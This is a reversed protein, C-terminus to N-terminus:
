FNMVINQKNLGMVGYRLADCAHDFIKEPEEKTISEDANLKQKKWHYSKLETITNRCRPDVFLRNSSFHSAVVRIGDLVSNDAPRVPIYEQKLAAIFSAASPDAFVTEIRKGEIFKKMDKLYDADTKLIRTDRGSYYYEDIVYKVGQFDEGMLLFCTANEIGYDVSVIMRKFRIDSTDAVKTDNFHPYILGEALCWVGDIYRKYLHPQDKLEAKLNEVFEVSLKPNDYITYHQKWIDIGPTKYLFKYLWHLESEPNLCMICTSYPASLRTKLMNFTDQAYSTAEDLYAFKCELGRLREAQNQKDCGIVYVREGFMDCSGDTRVNGVYDGYLQQMPEIINRKVSTLTNGLILTTGKLGKQRLLIMPIAYYDAFTKGSRVAGEKVIWRAIGKEVSRIFERQKKTFYM